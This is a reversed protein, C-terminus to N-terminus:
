AQRSNKIRPRVPQEVGEFFYGGALVKRRIEDIIKRKDRTAAFRKVQKIQEPAGGGAIAQWELLKGSWAVIEVM